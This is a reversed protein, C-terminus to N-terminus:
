SERRFVHGTPASGSFPRRKRERGGVCDTAYGDFHQIGFYYAGEAVSHPAITGSLRTETSSTYSKTAHGNVEAKVKFFIADWEGGAVGGVQYERTEVKSVAWEFKTESSSNNESRFTQLEDLDESHSTITYYTGDDCEIPRAGAPAVPWVTLGVLVALPLLRRRPRSM